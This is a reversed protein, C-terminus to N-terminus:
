AHSGLEVPGSPLTVTFVIRVMENKDTGICDKWGGGRWVHSM